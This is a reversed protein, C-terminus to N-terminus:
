SNQNGAERATLIGRMTAASIVVAGGALAWGSPKEGLFLLVWIPNLVPEITCILTADLARVRKIANAYLAYSFGLQFVGLFLLGACTKASPLPGIMFPLGIIATLINGLLVSEVPSADKQKRLLVVMCALSLGSILALVNGWFGTWSFQGVFFLATGLQTLGIIAWDARTAREHLFWAALLVIYVPATYQLFIANAATTLKTAAVFAFVTVAYAAASGLQVPSFTFRPRPFLAFITLAAILSRSGTIALPNWEVWKILLGGSSWLVAALAVQLVPNKLPHMQPSPSLM